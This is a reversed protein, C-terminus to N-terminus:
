KKTTIDERVLCIASDLYLTGIDGEDRKRVAVTKAEVEKEGIVFMYPVKAM